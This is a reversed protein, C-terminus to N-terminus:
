ASLYGRRLAVLYRDMATYPDGPALDNIFLPLKEPAFELLYRMANQELAAFGPVTTATWDNGYGNWCLREYTITYSASLGTGDGAQVVRMNRFNAAFAARKAKDADVRAENLKKTLADLEAAIRKVSAPADKLRQLLAVDARSANLASTLESIQTHLSHITDTKM